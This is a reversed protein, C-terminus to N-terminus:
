VWVRSLCVKLWMPWNLPEEPDDSPTPNLKLEIEQAFPKADGEIDLNSDVVTTTPSLDHSVIVGSLSNKHTTSM